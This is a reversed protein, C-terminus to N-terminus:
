LGWKELGAAVGDEDNSPAIWKAVRKVEPEANAMAIGVGAQEVMTFDNMGDGFAMCNELGFGLHEAFRKLANGKHASKINLEINNWTSATVKIDPFKEALEM